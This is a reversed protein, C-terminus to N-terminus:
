STGWDIDTDGTRLRIPRDYETGVTSVNMREAGTLVDARPTFEPRRIRPTTRRTGTRPLRWIAEGLPRPLRAEDLREHGFIQCRADEDLFDTEPPLRDFAHARARAAADPGRAETRLDALRCRPRAERVELPKVATELRQLEAGLRADATEDKGHAVEEILAALTRVDCTHDADAGPHM